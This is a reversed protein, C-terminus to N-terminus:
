VVFPTAEDYMQVMKRWEQPTPVPLHLDPSREKAAMNSRGIILRETLNRVRSSSGYGTRVFRRGGNRFHNFLAYDINNAGDGIGELYRLSFQKPGYTAIGLGNLGKDTFHPFFRLGRREPIPDLLWKDGMQRFREMLERMSIRQAESLRRADIDYVISRGMKSDYADFIIEGHFPNNDFWDFHGDPKWAGPITGPGPYGRADDSPARLEHLQGSARLYAQYVEEVDSENVAPTGYHYAPEGLRYINLLSIWEKKLEQAYTSDYALKLKELREDPVQPQLPHGALGTNFRDDWQFQALDRMARVLKSDNIRHELDVSATSGKASMNQKDALESLAQNVFLMGDGNLYVVDIGIRPNVVGMGNTMGNKSVSVAIPLGLRKALRMREFRYPHARGIPKLTSMFDDINKEQDAKLKDADLYYVITGEPFVKINRENRFPNPEGPSKSRSADRISQKPKSRTDGLPVILGEYNREPWDDNNAPAPRSSSESYDM